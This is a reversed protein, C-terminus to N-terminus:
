TAPRGAAREPITPFGAKNIVTLLHMAEKEVEAEFGTCLGAVSTAAERTIAGVNDQENIGRKLLAEMLSAYVAFGALAQVRPTKEAAMIPRGKLVWPM